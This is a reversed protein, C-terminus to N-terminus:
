FTYRITVPHHDGENVSILVKSGDSIIAKATMKNGGSSTLSMETKEGSALIIISGRLNATPYDNGHDRIYLSISNEERVVEFVMDHAEQVIGGHKPELNGHSLASPAIIALSFILGISAAFLIKM